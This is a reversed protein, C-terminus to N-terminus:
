FKAALKKAKEEVERREPLYDPNPPINRVADLMKRAEQKRNSYFYAEALYLYIFSNQKTLKLAQELYSIAKGTSGGLIGRTQLEIQALAVYAMASEYNPDLAIVKEMNRRIEPLNAAGDLVNNRAQGGLNAGCWFYGDAKDPQIKIATKAAAAGDKFARGRLTEDETNNGLFYNFKALKWAAEYNGGDAVRARRLLQLGDRLKALDERRKYLEDAQKVLEVASVTEGVPAADDKAGGCNVVFFAILLLALSVFRKASSM